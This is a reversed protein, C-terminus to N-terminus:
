QAELYFKYVPVYLRAAFTLQGDRLVPGCGLSAAFENVRAEYTGLWAATTTLQHEWGYRTDFRQNAVALESLSLGSCQVLAYHYDPPAASASAPMVILLAAGILVFLFLVFTRKALQMSNIKNTISVHAAYHEKGRLSGFLSGAWGLALSILGVLADFVTKNLWTEPVQNAVATLVASLLLVLAGQIANKVSASLDPFVRNIVYAVAVPVITAAVFAFLAAVTQTFPDFTM